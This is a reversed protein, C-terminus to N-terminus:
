LRVILCVTILRILIHKINNLFTFTQLHLSFVIISNMLTWILLCDVTSRFSLSTACVLAIFKKGLKEKTSHLFDKQVLALYLALM